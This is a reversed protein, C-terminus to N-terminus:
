KIKSALENGAKFKIVRRRPPPPHKGAQGAKYFDSLLIKEWMQYIDDLRALGQLRDFLDTGAVATLTSVDCNQIFHAPSLYIVKTNATSNFTFTLLLITDYIFIVTYDQGPVLGRTYFTYNSNIAVEKLFAGEPTYIEAKFKSYDIPNPTSM